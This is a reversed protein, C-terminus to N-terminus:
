YKIITIIYSWNLRSFQDIEFAKDFMNEFNISGVGKSLSASRAGILNGNGEVSNTDKWSGIM